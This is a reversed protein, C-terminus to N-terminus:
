ESLSIEVVEDITDCIIPMEQNDKFIWVTFGDTSYREKVTKYKGKSIFRTLIKTTRGEKIDFLKRRLADTLLHAGKTDLSFILDNKWVLFDTYFNQTDGIDLLPISYGSQSSNRHWINTTKDLAEAFESEFPNLGSYGEYLSNQYKKLSSEKVRIKDFVFIDDAMYDLRAHSVFHKYAEEAKSIILKDIISGFSVHKRFEQSNTDTINM